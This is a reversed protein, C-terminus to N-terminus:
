ALASPPVRRPARTSHALPHRTCCPDSRVTGHVVIRNIKAMDDGCSTAAYCQVGDKFYVWQLPAVRLRGSM